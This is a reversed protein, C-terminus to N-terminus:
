LFHEGYLLSIVGDYHPPLLVQTDQISQDRCFEIRDTAAPQRFHQQGYSDPEDDDEEQHHDKVAMLIVEQYINRGYSLEFIM